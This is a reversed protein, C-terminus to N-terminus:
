KVLWLSDSRKSKEKSVQACDANTRLSYILIRKSTYLKAESDKVVESPAPVSQLMATSARYVSTTNALPTQLTRVAPVQYSARKGAARESEAKMQNAIVFSAAAPLSENLLPKSVHVPQSADISMRAEVSSMAASSSSNSPIVLHCASNYEESSAAPYIPVTRPLNPSCAEDARTKIELQHDYETSLASGIIALLHNKSVDPPRLTRTGNEYVLHDFRDDYHYHLQFHPHFMWIIPPNRDIHAPGEATESSKPNTDLSRCTGDLRLSGLNVLTSAESPTPSSEAPHRERGGFASVEMTPCGLANTQESTEM